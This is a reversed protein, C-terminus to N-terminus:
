KKDNNKVISKKKGSSTFCNERTQPSFYLDSKSSQFYRANIRKITTDMQFFFDNKGRITRRKARGVESSM